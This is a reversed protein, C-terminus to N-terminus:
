IPLILNGSRKLADRCGAVNGDADMIAWIDRIVKWQRAFNGVRYGQIRVWWEVWPQRDAAECAAIFAPWSMPAARKEGGMLSDKLNEANTLNEWVAHVVGELNLPYYNEVTRYYFIVVASHFARAQCRIVELATAQEPRISHFPESEVNWSSLENRLDECAQLLIEPIESGQYFSLYEAIQCTKDLQNGLVPTVGYIYEISREHNDFQPPDFLPHDPHWVRPQLEHSTTRALLSLFHCISNVQRHNADTLANSYQPPKQLRRCGELHIPFDADEGTM